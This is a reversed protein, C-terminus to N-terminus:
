DLGLTYFFTQKKDKRKIIEVTHCNVQKVSAITTNTASLNNNWAWLAAQKWDVANLHHKSIVNEYLEFRFVM